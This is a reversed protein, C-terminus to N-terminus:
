PRRERSGKHIPSNPRFAHFVFAFTVDYPVDVLADGRRKQVIVNGVDRGAPISAKDLVSAQGPQWQLLLDASELVFMRQGLPKLVPSIRTLASSPGSVIVFLKRERALDPNGLVPAAVYSQGALRHQQALRRSLGPSITSMSLHIAGPALVHILGPDRLTVAELM